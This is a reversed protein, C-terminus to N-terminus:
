RMSNWIYLPLFCLIFVIVVVILMKATRRRANVQATMANQGVETLSQESRTSSWLCKAIAVYTYGMVLIPLIYFAVIMFMHFNFELRFMNSRPGCSTMLITLEKPILNDPKEAFIWLRPTSAAHATVWIVILAGVVRRRTEKFTLPRCIAFWREVSIATLTMVSVIVSVTQYYEVIKCMVNGLFWTETMTQLYSPPLCLIIVLFDAVALNVLFINTTTRLHRNRWVAVCVLLNGTIGILFVFMYLVTFVWEEPKPEIFQYICDLLHDDSVYCQESPPDHYYKCVSKNYMSVLDATYLCSVNNINSM